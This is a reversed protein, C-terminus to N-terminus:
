PTVNADDPTAPKCSARLSNGSKTSRSTTIGSMSPKATHRQNFIFASVRSMGMMMSVTRLANASRTSPRFM